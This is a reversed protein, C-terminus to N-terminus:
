ITEPESTFEALDEPTNLNRFLETAGPLDAYEEFRVQRMVVLPFLGDVRLRNEGLLQEIIPLCSSEYIAALPQPRGHQDVALTLQPRDQRHIEALLALFGTTMSPLDCALILASQTQDRCRRLATCFGGLPGRDEYLDPLLEVRQSSAWQTLDPSSPPRAPLVVGLQHVLPRAAELPREILPRGAIELWAKAKGMRASKGGAQIFGWDLM